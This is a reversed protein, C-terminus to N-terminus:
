PFETVLSHTVHPGKVLVLGSDLQEFAQGFAGPAAAQMPLPALKDKHGKEVSCYYFPGKPDFLYPMHHDAHDRWWNSMEVNEGHRMHEWARWMATLRAVAEPHEHWEPCWRIQSELGARSVERAYCEAIYDEVFADVTKYHLEKKETEEEPEEAPPALTEEAAVLATREMGARVDETLVSALVDKAIKKAVDAVQGGVARRVADDLVAGLAQPSIEAAGPQPETAATATTGNTSTPATSGNSSTSTTM